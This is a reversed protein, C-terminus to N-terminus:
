GRVAVGQSRAREAVKRSKDLGQQVSCRINAQSFGESASVFVAVEKVGYQLAVDLGKLNPVLVPARTRPHQLFLQVKKNALVMECDALQPVARHSVVSTVEVAQLGAARLKTILQIKTATPIRQKVNQLGDRPGVEVVRVDPATNPLSM